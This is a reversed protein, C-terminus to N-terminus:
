QLDKFVSQEETGHWVGTGRVGLELPMLGHRIHLDVYVQVLLIRLWQLYIHAPEGGPANNKSLDHWHCRM